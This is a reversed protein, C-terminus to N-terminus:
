GALAACEDQVAALRDRLAAPEPGAAMIDRSSTPLVRGVQDGFLERLRGISGGQAGIGANNVVIDLSGLTDVVTQVGRRVSADDTVDVTVALDADAAAANVDFVAVKAGDSRLRAAIAAGLGSAGGTVVAVLGDLQGAM